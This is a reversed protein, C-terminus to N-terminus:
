LSAEHIPHYLRRTTAQHTVANQLAAASSPAPRKPTPKQHKVLKLLNQTMAVLYCQIQVRWRRRWRSRRHAHRTKAHAFRGEAVALRRGLWYHCAGPPCEAPMRQSWHSLGPSKARRAGPRPKLYPKIGRERLHAINARTGYASDGTSRVPEYGVRERHEDLLTPLMTADDYDAPTALTATIIGCQDDTLCHDRYGLTVGRGRRRTTAADPDTTSVTMANFRGRPPPPLRSAQTDEKPAPTRAPPPAAQALALHHGHGDQDQDDNPNDDQDEADNTPVSTEPTHHADPADDPTAALTLTAAEPTAQTTAEHLPETTNADTEVAETETADPQEDADRGSELQEWLRRAVRSSVSADAQIVTSDAHVTQGGVLGAAQCQDLVDCFLTEFVDLGWLRRAKSLVSHHPMADDLDMELFWLWDLRLPLQRMLARESPVQEILLLLMLKLVVVPDISMHGNIGYCHAVTRRVREFSVGQTIRRLRHDAPIREDLNLDTYFLKGARQRRPGMM